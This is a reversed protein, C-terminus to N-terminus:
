GRALSCYVRGAHAPVETYLSGRRAEMARGGYIDEWKPMQVGRIQIPKTEESPNVAVIGRQFRRIYVGDVEELDGLLRGLRLKYLARAPHNLPLSFYDSWLFGSLRACAYSFFVEEKSAAQGQFNPLHHSEEFAM